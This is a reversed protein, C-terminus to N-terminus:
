YNSAAAQLQAQKYSSIMISRGPEGSTYVKGSTWRDAKCESIIFLFMKATPAQKEPKIEPM